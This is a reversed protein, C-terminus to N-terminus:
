WGYIRSPDAIVHFDCDIKYLAQNLVEEDSEFVSIIQIKNTKFQEQMRKIEFFRSACIPCSAFSFFLIFKRKQIKLDLINGDIDKANFLPLKEGVQLM